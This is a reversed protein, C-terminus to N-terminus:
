LFRPHRSCSLLEPCILKYLRSAELVFYQGVKFEARPIGLKEQMGHDILSEVDGLILQISAYDRLNFTSAHFPWRVSYCSAEPDGIRLAQKRTHLTLCIRDHIQISHAYM